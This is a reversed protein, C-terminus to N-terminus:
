WESPEIKLQEGGDRDLWRLILKDGEIRFIFRYHRIRGEQSVHHLVLAEDNKTSGRGSVSLRYAEDGLESIKIEYVGQEANCIEFALARSREPLNPIEIVPGYTSDPINGRKSVFGDTRSLPDTVSLGLAPISEHDKTSGSVSVFPKDLCSFAHSTRAETPSTQSALPCTFVALLLIHSRLM